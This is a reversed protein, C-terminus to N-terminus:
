DKGHMAAHEKKLEEILESLTLRQNYATVAAKLPIGGLGCSRMEALVKDLRGSSIGSFVVCEDDASIKEGSPAFGKYGVLYGIQEGASLKDAACLEIKLKQAMKKFAETKEESFGYILIKESPMTVRAKM